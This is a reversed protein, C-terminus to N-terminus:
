KLCFFPPALGQGACIEEALKGIVKVTLDIGFEEGFDLGVDTLAVVALDDEVGRALGDGDVALVLEVLKRGLQALAQVGGDHLLAGAASEPREGKM